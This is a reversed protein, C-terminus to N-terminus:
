VPAGLHIKMCINKYPVMTSALARSTWHHGAQWPAALDDAPILSPWFTVPPVDLKRFDGSIVSRDRWSAGRAGVKEEEARWVTPRKWRESPVARSRIQMHQTALKPTGCPPFEFVGLRAKLSIGHYIPHRSSVGTASDGDHIAHEHIMERRWQGAGTAQTRKKVKARRPTTYDIAVQAHGPGDVRGSQRRGRHM